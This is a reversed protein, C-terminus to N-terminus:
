DFIDEYTLLTRKTDKPPVSRTQPAPTWSGAQQSTKRVATVRWGEESGELATQAHAAIEPNDFTLFARCIIIYVDNTM